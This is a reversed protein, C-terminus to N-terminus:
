KTARWEAWTRGNVKLQDVHARAMALAEDLADWRYQHQQFAQPRGWKGARSLDSFGDTVAYGGRGTDTRAGRWEVRLSFHRLEPDDLAMGDPLVLVGTTLEIGAM